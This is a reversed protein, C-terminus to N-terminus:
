VRTEPAGNGLVEELAFILEGKSLSRPGAVDNLYPHELNNMVSILFDNSWGSTNKVFYNSSEARSLDYSAKGANGGVRQIRFDADEKSVFQILDSSTAQKVKSRLYQRSEWVQFVCPVSYEAGEFVFANEAIDEETVLHLHRPIGNKVSIKKFSKPLIFAVTHAFKASEVIFKKALNGNTGFPPNGLVLVKKDNFINKDLTLWDAQKISDHEPSIDYAVCEPILNSFSGAGASPEVVIEFSNVDILTLLKEAVEPKTYFRDLVDKNGGSKTTGKAM